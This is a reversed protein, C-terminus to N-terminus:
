PVRGPALVGNPDFAARLRQAIAGPLRPTGWTGVARRLESPAREVVLAGERGEAAARLDRTAAADLPTLLHLTEIGPYLVADAADVDYALAPPWTARLSVEADAPADAVAQWAADPIERPSRLRATAERRLREVAAANGALRVLVAHAAGSGVR